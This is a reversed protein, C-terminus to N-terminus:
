KWLNNMLKEKFEIKTNQLKENEIKLDTIKSQLDDCNDLLQHIQQNGTDQLVKNKLNEVKHKYNLAVERLREKEQLTTKLENQIVSIDNTATKVKEEIQDVNQNTGFLLSENGELLENNEDLFKIMNEQVKRKKMKEDILHYETQQILRKLERIRDEGGLNQSSALKLQSQLLTKNKEIFQETEQLKDALKESEDYIAIREKKLDDIKESIQEENLNKVEEESSSSSSSSSSSESLEKLEKIHFMKNRKEKLLRLKEFKEKEIEQTINHILNQLKNVERSVFGSQMLRLNNQPVDRKTMSTTMRTKPSTKRETKNYSNSKQANKNQKNTLNQITQYYKKNKGTLEKNKNELNNLRRELELIKNSYESQKKPQTRVSGRGRGRGRGRNNIPGGVQWRYNKKFPNGRSFVPSAKRIKDFLYSQKLRLEEKRNIDENSNNNPKWETRKEKEVKEYTPRIKPKETRETRRSYNPKTNTNSQNFHRPSRSSSSSSKTSTKPQSRNYSTQTKTTSFNSKPTYTNTQTKKPKNQSKPESSVQNSNNFSSQKAQTNKQSITKEPIIKEITTKQTPKNHKRETGTKTKTETESTSSSSSSSSTKKKSSEFKPKKQETQIEKEKEEETKKEQQDKRVLRPKTTEEKPKPTKRDEEMAEEYCDMCYYEGANFFFPTAIFSISCKFCKWCKKHCVKGRVKVPRDEIIEKCRFCFQKISM